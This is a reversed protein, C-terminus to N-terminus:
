TCKECVGEPTTCFGQKTRRFAKKFSIRLAVIDFNLNNKTFICHRAKGKIILNQENSITKWDHIWSNWHVGDECLITWFVSSKWLPVILTGEASCARLHRVVKIILVTPPFLWNNNYSWNQTFADVAETGLQYFRSNFRALKANYCCAFRDVTHPGWLSDLKRFVNDNITYDDHDLIQSISDAQTNLGRPVWKIDLNIHSRVCIAFLQLALDQLESRRSGKSVVSVVNQNDTFWAITRNKLYLEFAQAALVVTKLERWTSSGNREEETWNSHFVKEDVNLIAGCAHASADSYVIRSPILNDPWLQKSNLKSINNLWFNFELKTASDLQVKDHWSSCNNILSYASRTMLNVVNGVAMELSIVQGVVSALDKVKMYEQNIQLINRLASTLKNIRKETAQITNKKTNITYGLWTTEQVPDWVSKSENIIFGAKLLVSHVTLSNSRASLLNRGAGLGDDLYVAIPIGQKRCVTTLPKLLKTFVFPASSLGFPLVCFQFYRSGSGGFDWAFSLFKRHEENIEIHHYASKLDFKFMYFGKDFLQIISKIDECKFKQKYVYKNM